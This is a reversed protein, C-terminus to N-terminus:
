TTIIDTDIVGEGVAETNVVGSVTSELEHYILGDLSATDAPLLKVTVEGNTPDTLEIEATDDTSKEIVNSGGIESIARWKFSWGTINQVVSDDANTQYITYVLSHTDGSVMEFNQNKKTM